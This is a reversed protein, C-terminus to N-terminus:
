HVQLQIVKAKVKIRVSLIIGNIKSLLCTRIFDGPFCNGMTVTRFLIVKTKQGVRQSWDKENNKIKKGM